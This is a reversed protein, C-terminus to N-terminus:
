NPKDEPELFSEGTVLFVEGERLYKKGHASLRRVTRKESVYQVASEGDDSIVFRALPDGTKKLLQDTLIEELKAKRRLKEEDTPKMQGGERVAVNVGGARGKAIGDPCPREKIPGFTVKQPDDAKIGGLAVVV